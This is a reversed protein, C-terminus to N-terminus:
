PPRVPCVKNYGCYACKAPSPSPKPPEEAELIRRLREIARLTETITRENVPVEWAEGGMYLIARRVPGLLDMVLLTYALLQLRYHRWRGRPRKYAKVELVTYPGEGAILDVVGSLGLRPSRLPVEVRYPRPLGLEEAVEEKRRADVLRGSEMSPTPDEQYGLRAKIWPIVPCYEMDKLDTVTLYGRDYYSYSRLRM